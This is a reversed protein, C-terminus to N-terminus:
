LIICENKLGLEVIQKVIADGNKMSCIIIPLNINKSKLYESGYIKKGAFRTGQKTKNNDICFEIKDSIEPFEALFQTALAGTGWLIYKDLSLKKYKEEKEKKRESYQELYNLVSKRSSDDKEIEHTDVKKKSYVGYLIYEGNPETVLRSQENSIDYYGYGAFLRDLTQQSFFNIHEHNFYNPLDTYKIEFGEVAPVVVIIRGDSKVAALVNKIYGDVDFIHELVGTSIVVDFKPLDLAAIEFVSGCIGNVGKRELTRISDASPDLGYVNGYGNQKLVSLLGGDGCGVDFVSENIAIFKRLLSFYFKPFLEEDESYKISDAESYSNLEKYYRDYSDQNLDNDAFVFGCTNCCVIDNKKALPHEEGFAFRIDFLKEKEKTNCIPCNRGM